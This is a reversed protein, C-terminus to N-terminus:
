LPKKYDRIVIGFGKLQGIMENITQQEVPILIRVKVRRSAAATEKLLQLLVADEKIQHYFANATSFIILIEKRASKILEYSIKKYKL